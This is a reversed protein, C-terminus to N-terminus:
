QNSSNDKMMNEKEIETMVAISIDMLDQCFPIEEATPPKRFMLDDTLLALVGLFIATNKRHQGLLIDYYEAIPSASMEKDLYSHPQLTSVGKKHNVGNRLSNLKDLEDSQIFKWVFTFYPQQKAKPPLKQDLARLKQQHKQKSDLDTIEFTLGLIMVIKEVSAKLYNIISDCESIAEMENGTLKYDGKEHKIENMLHILSHFSSFIKQQITLTEYLFAILDDAQPHKAARISNFTFGEQLELGYRLSTVPIKAMMPIVLSCMLPSYLALNLHLYDSTSKSNKQATLLRVGQLAEIKQQDIATLYDLDWKRHHHLLNIDFLVNGFDTKTGFVDNHLVEKAKAIMEENDPKWRITLIAKLKSSLKLKKWIPEIQVSAMYSGKQDFPGFPVLYDEQLRFYYKLLLKSLKIKM